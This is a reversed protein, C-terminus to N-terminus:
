DDAHHNKNKCYDQWKLMMGGFTEDPFNEAAQFLSKTCYDLGEDYGQKYGRKRGAEEALYLLTALGLAYIVKNLHHM